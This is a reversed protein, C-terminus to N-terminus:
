RIIKYNRYEGIQHGLLKQSWRKIREKLTIRNKSIDYDFKWNNQQIRKAMTKPHNGRFLKLQDIHGYDFDHDSAQVIPIESETTGHRVLRDNKVKDHMVAPPKVWGYHYIAADIEKVRLKENNGKRFGQADRYSYISRNNKIVRIEKRYWQSSSGVFDYSGYFHHYNFLLGDVKDDNKYKEMAERIVPIDEEHMVEDGQIYVCWDTDPSIKNLAKNTEDALVAGDNLLTEDWITHFIKLNASIGAILQNTTDSSDGAAVVIEDCLPAISLIAEEIPFDFKVANKIFTFGTIRM